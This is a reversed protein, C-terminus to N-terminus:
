FDSRNIKNWAWIFRSQYLYNARNATKVICIKEDSFINEIKKSIKDKFGEFGNDFDDKLFDYKLAM